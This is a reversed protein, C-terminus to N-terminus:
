RAKASETCRGFDSNPVILFPQGRPHTGPVADHIYMLFGNNQGLKQQCGIIRPQLAKFGEKPGFKYSELAKNAEANADEGFPM